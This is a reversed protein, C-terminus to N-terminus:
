KIIEPFPIPVIVKTGKDLIPKIKLLIEEKFNWSLLLFYDPPDKSDQHYVPISTGPYFTGCKHPNIEVGYDIEDITLNCYNILTSGKVPAGLAVISKGQKKLDKLIGRLLDRNIRVKEAFELYVEIDNFRKQNELDLLEKLRKSKEVKGKRRILAICSGGHIPKRIADVIELDYINLLRQFSSLSYYLLHEHYIQDYAINEIMDPLYIFEAILLGSDPELLKNIGHFVSHLEELHFFIGSGHIISAHGHDKLIQEALNENFFENICPINKEKSKKAQLLGSDVNLVKHGLKKFHELFTGDNGGIDLVYNDNELKTQSLAYKTVDLFHKRLSSTTGSLYTHNVFMDEKPIAYDLQVMKCDNCFFVQLPYNKAIENSGIPIFNNGWPQSGLDLVLNLNNSSCCRCKM